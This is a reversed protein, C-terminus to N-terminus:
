QYIYLVVLVIIILVVTVPDEKMAPTGLPIVSIAGNDNVIAAGMSVPQWCSLRPISLMIMMVM